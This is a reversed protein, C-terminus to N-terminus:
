ILLYRDDLPLGAALSDWPGRTADQGRRAGHDQQHRAVQNEGVGRSCALSEVPREVPKTSISTRELVGRPRLQALVGAGGDANFESALYSGFAAVAARLGATDQGAREVCVLAGLVFLGFIEKLADHDRCLVM